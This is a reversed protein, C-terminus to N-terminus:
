KKIGAILIELSLLSGWFKRSPGGYAVRTVKFGEEHFLRKLSGATFYHLAGGDWGQEASSTVPLRGMLLRLRNGIWAANVVHVILFGGPKLLRYSEKMLHYPDFIYPLVAIVMVADFSADEFDLKENVDAVGLHIGPDNGFQKQMRAIRPASIDIGYVEQYKDRLPMEMLEEGCGIDLITDGGPLAQFALEYRNRMFRALIRGLITSYLAPKRLNSHNDAYMKEYFEKVSV